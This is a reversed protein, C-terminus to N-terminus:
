NTLIVFSEPFRLVEGAEKSTLSETYSVSVRIARGRDIIWFGRGRFPIGNCTFRFDYDLRKRGDGFSYWNAKARKPDQGMSKVFADNSMELFSNFSSQKIASPIPVITIAYLAGGNAFSKTSQYAYGAGQSTAASVKEPTEPFIAGFGESTNSWLGSASATKQSQQSIDYGSLKISKIIRDTIPELYTSASELYSVTLTFSRESALVRILRVRFAGSDKLSKRRYETIFTTLGNITVKKTGDWSLISMGFAKLAKLMNVKLAADLENVDQLTAQQADAQNLHINPYYRVNATGITEGADNYLNAAFPLSSDLNPLKSLDLRSEVFSDLTIRQNNSLVIWNQPFDVYLDKPLGISVFNKSAIAVNDGFIFVILFLIFLAFVIFRHQFYQGKLSKAYPLKNM